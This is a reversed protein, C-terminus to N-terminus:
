EDPDRPPPPDLLRGLVEGIVCDSYVHYVNTTGYLTGPCATKCGNKMFDPPARVDIMEGNNVLWRPGKQKRMQEDTLVEPLMAAKWAEQAMPNKRYDEGPELDLDLSGGRSFNFRPPGPMAGVANEDLLKRNSTAMCAGCPAVARKGTSYTVVRASDTGKNVAERGRELVASGARHLSERGNQLVASGSRVLNKPTEILRSSTRRFLHDDEDTGEDCSHWRVLGVSRSHPPKEAKPQERNYCCAAQGM